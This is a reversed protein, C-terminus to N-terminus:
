SSSGCGNAHANRLRSAVDRVRQLQEKTEPAPIMSLSGPPDCSLDSRFDNALVYRLVKSRAAALSTDGDLEFGLRAGVLKFLEVTADKEAIANDQRDDALWRTLLVESSPGGFITRLMSARAGGTESQVLFDM